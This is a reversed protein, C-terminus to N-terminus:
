KIALRGEVDAFAKCALRRGHTKGRDLRLKRRKVGVDLFLTANPQNGCLEIGWGMRRM